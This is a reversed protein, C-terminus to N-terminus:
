KFQDQLWEDFEKESLINEAMVVQQLGREVAEAGRGPEPQHEHQKGGHAFSEGQGVHRQM